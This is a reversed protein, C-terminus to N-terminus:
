NRTQELRKIRKDHNDVQGQLKKTQHIGIVKDERIEELEKVIKDLINFLRDNTQQMKRELKEIATDVTFQMEKRIGEAFADFRENLKEDFYKKTIYDDKLNKQKM